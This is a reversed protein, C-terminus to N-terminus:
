FLTELSRTEFLSLCAKELDKGVLEGRDISATYHATSHGDNPLRLDNGHCKSDVHHSARM